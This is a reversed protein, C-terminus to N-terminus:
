RGAGGSSRRTGVAPLGFYPLCPQLSRIQLPVARATPWGVRDPAAQRTLAPHGRQLLRNVSGRRLSGATTALTTM